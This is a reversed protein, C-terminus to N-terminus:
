VWASRRQFYSSVCEIRLKGSIGASSKTGSDAAPLTDPPAPLAAGGGAVEPIAPGGAVESIPTGGAVESMAAAGTVEPIATGGAMDPIATGGEVGPLVNVSAAGPAMPAVPAPPQVPSGTHVSFDISHFFSYQLLKCYKSFSYRIVLVNLGIRLTARRSMHTPNLFSRVEGFLGRSIPAQWWEPMKFRAKPFEILELSGSAGKLTCSLAHNTFSSPPKLATLDKTFRATILFIVAILYSQVYMILM